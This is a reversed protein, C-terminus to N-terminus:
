KRGEIHMRKWGFAWVRYFIANYLSERLCDRRRFVINCLQTNMYCCNRGYDKDVNVQLLRRLLKRFQQRM